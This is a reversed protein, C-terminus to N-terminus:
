GSSTMLWGAAVEVLNDPTLGHPPDAAVLEVVLTLASLLPDEVEM